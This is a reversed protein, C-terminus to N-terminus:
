NAVPGRTSSATTPSCRHCPVHQRACLTEDRCDSTRIHVPDGPHGCELQQTAVSCGRGDTFSFGRGHLLGVVRRIPAPRPSM